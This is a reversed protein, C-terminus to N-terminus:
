EMVEYAAERGLGSLLNNIERKLEIIRLERGVALQNFTEIEDLNDRLSQEAQKRKATDNIVVVMGGDDTHASFLEIILITNNKKSCFPVLAMVGVVAALPAVM